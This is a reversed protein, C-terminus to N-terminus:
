PKALIVVSLIEVGVQLKITSITPEEAEEKIGESTAIKNTLKNM